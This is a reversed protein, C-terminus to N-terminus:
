PMQIQHTGGSGGRRFYKEMKEFMIVDGYIVM